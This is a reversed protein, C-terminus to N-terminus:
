SKKELYGTRELAPLLYGPEVLMVSHVTGGAVMLGMDALSARYYHIEAVKEPNVYIARPQGLNAQWSALDGGTKGVIVDNRLLSWSGELVTLNVARRDRHRVLIGQPLIVMEQDGEQIGFDSILQGLQFPSSGTEPRQLQWRADEDWNWLPQAIAPALWSLFILVLLFHARRQSM